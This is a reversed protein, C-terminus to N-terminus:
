DESNKIEVHIERLFGALKEFEVPGLAGRMEELFGQFLRAGEEARGSPDNERGDGGRRSRKMMQGLFVAGLDERTKATIRCGLEELIMAWCETLAPGFSARHGFLRWYLDGEFKYEEGPQIWDRAMEFENLLFKFVDM